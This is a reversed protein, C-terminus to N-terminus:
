VKKNVNQNIKKWNTDELSLLTQSRFTDRSLPPSYRHSTTTSSGKSFTSLVPPIRTSPSHPPPSLYINIQSCVYMTVIFIIVNRLNRLRIWALWQQSKFFVQPIIHSFKTEIYTIFYFTHIEKPRKQTSRIPHTIASRYFHFSMFLGYM